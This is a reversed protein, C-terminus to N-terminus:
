PHSPTRAGATRARRLVDALWQRQFDAQTMGTRRLFAAEAPMGSRLDQLLELLGERGVRAALFEVMSRSQAYALGASDAPLRRWDDGLQQMDLARGSAAIEEVFEEYNEPVGEIATAIGEDLWIPTTVGNTFYNVAEHGYEHLIVDSFATNHCGGGSRFLNISSGNLYANCTNNLNVNVPLRALGTFSPVQHALWAR